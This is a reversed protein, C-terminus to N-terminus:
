VGTGTVLQILQSRPNNTPITIRITVPVRDGAALPAGLDLGQRIDVPVALWAGGDISAELWGASDCALTATDHDATALVELEVDRVAGPTLWDVPQYRLERTAGPLTIILAM